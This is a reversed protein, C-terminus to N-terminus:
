RARTGGPLPATGSLVGPGSRGIAVATDGLYAAIVMPDGLVQETSGQALLHGQDLAIMRDVTASLLPM